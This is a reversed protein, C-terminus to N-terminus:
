TGHYISDEELKRVAANLIKMEEMQNLLMNAFREQLFTYNVAAFAPSTARFGDLVARDGQAALDQYQDHGTLLYIAPTCVAFLPVCVCVSECVFVCVCVCVCVCLCLVVRIHKSRQM